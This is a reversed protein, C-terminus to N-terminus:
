EKKGDADKVAKKPKADAKEAAREKVGAAAEAEAQAKTETDEAVNRAAANAGVRNARQEAQIQAELDEQSEAGPICTLLGLGAPKECNQKEEDSKAVYSAKDPHDEWVDNRVLHKAEEANRTIIDYTDMGVRITSGIKYLTVLIDKLNLSM